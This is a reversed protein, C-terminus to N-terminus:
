PQNLHPVTFVTKIYCFIIIFYVFLSLVCIVITCILSSSFSAFNKEPMVRTDDIISSFFLM